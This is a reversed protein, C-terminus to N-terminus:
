IELRSFVSYIGMISKMGEKGVSALFGTYKNVITNAKLKQTILKCM